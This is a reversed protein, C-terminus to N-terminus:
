YTFKVREWFELASDLDPYTVYDLFWRRRQKSYIFLPKLKLRRCSGLRQKLRDKQARTLEGFTRGCPFKVGRKFQGNAHIPLYFGSVPDILYCYRIFREVQVNIGLNSEFEGYVGEADDDRNTDLPLGFSQGLDMLNETFTNDM